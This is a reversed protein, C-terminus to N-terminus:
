FSFYENGIVPGGSHPIFIPSQYFKGTAGDTHGALRMNLRSVLDVKSM